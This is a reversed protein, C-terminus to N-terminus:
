RMNKSHQSTRLLTGMYCGFTVSIKLSSNAIRQTQNEVKEKEFTDQGECCDTAQKELGVLTSTERKGKLFDRCSKKGLNEVKQGARSNREKM